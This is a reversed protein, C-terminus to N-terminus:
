RKTASPYGEIQMAVDKSIVGVQRWHEQLAARQNLPTKALIQDLMIKRSGDSSNVSKLMTDVPREGKATKMYQTKYADRITLAFSANIKALDSIAKEQENQSGLPLIKTNYYDQATEQIGRKMPLVTGTIVQAIIEAPVNGEKMAVIVDDAKLIGNQLSILDTYHVRLDNIFSNKEESYKSYLMQENIGPLAKKIASKYAAESEAASTVSNRMSLVGSILPDVPTERYGLGRQIIKEMTQKQGFSNVIGLRARRIREGTNSITGPVVTQSAFYELRERPNRTQSIPISTGYYNNTVAEIAPTLAVGMDDGAFYKYAAKVGPNLNGELPQDFVSTFINVLDAQPLLYNVPTYSVTKGDKSIDFIISKDRDYSPVVSRRLRQQDEESVGNFKNIMKPIAATAALIGALYVKRKVGANYMAANGTKKGEETLKHAYRIQNTLIRANDYSYNVFSQLAGIGSMQKVRIPVRNYSFFHDNTNQAAQKKIADMGLTPSHDMLEKINSQWIMFRATSDPLSAIDGLFNIAKSIPGTVKKNSQIGAMSRIEELGLGGQLMGYRKAEAIEQNLLTRSKGDTSLLEKGWNFDAIALKFGKAAGSLNVKGTSAAVLLNSWLQPAIFNYLDGITKNAKFFGILRSYNKGVESNGFLGTATMEKYANMVPETVFLNAFNHDESSGDPALRIQGVEPNRTALGQSELLRAINKESIDRHVLKSLKDITSYARAGPDTIEGLMRLGSQSIEKRKRLVGNIASQENALMDVIKRQAEFDTLGDAILEAKFTAVDRPNPKWDIGQQHAKFSRNMYTLLNAGITRRTEDTAPLNEQAYTTYKLRLQNFRLLPERLNAPADFVNLKGDLMKNAYVRASAPDAQKSSWWDTIQKALGFVESEDGLNNNAKDILENRIKTGLLLEPTFAAITAQRLNGAAFNRVGFAAVRPTAAGLLAYTAGLVLPSSNGEEVAKNYGYTFGGVAGVTSAANVGSSISRSLAIRALEAKDYSQDLVGSQRNGIDISVNGQEDRAGIQQTYSPKEAELPKANVDMLINGDKDRTGIQQTYTEPASQKVLEVDALQEKILPSIIKSAGTLETSDQKALTSASPMGIHQDIFSQLQAAIKSDIPQDSNAVKNLANSAAMPSKGALNLQKYLSYVKTLGGVSMEVGGGFAANFLGSQMAEDVTPMPKDSMLAIAYPATYGIAGGTLSAEIARVALPTAARNAAEVKMANAIVTASAEKSLSFLTKVGAKVTTVSPIINILGSVAAEAESPDEVGRMKQSLINGSYGGAFSLIPYSLGLTAPALAAGTVQGATGLAIDAVLAGAVQGTSPQAQTKEYENPDFGSQKLEEYENPNFAM